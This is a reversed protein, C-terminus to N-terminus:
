PRQASRTTSSVSRCRTRSETPVLKGLGAFASMLHEITGVKVGDRELCSCMRTDGVSHANAPLDVPNPLDVRRFVIGTDPAAPRLSMTVKVGGHLGVGSARIVSKLTRQKLM